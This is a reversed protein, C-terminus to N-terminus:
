RGGASITVGAAGTGGLVGIGEQVAVAQGATVLVAEVYDNLKTWPTRPVWVIDGGELRLDPERGRLVAEINVVAVQPRLTSGRIILAKSAVANKNVGGASAMATVLTTGSEYYVPGPQPVEGLVYISRATLSPVFIYDGGRIYVNQSMDGERVLAAFNVPILDGNRILIAKELDAAEPNGVEQDDGRALLGGGQSLAEILTTPKKIPYTGPTRVQGLMWFRQSDANAVNVTVIPNVYDEALSRSLRQSIEAITLGRVQLGSAVDYYLMGDPLVRTRQRTAANEAVEIDLIDGPGVRYPGAPPQLLRRDVSKEFALQQFKPDGALRRAVEQESEAVAAPADYAFNSHTKFERDAVKLSACSSAGLAAALWLGLLGVIRSASRAQNTATPKM